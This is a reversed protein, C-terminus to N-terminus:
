DINVAFVILKNYNHGTPFFQKGPYTQMLLMQIVTTDTSDDGSVVIVSARQDVLRRVDAGDGQLSVVAVVHGDNLHKTFHARMANNPSGHIFFIVSKGVDLRRSSKLLREANELLQGIQGENQPIPIDFNLLDNASLRGRWDLINDNHSVAAFNPGRSSLTYHPIVRTAFHKMYQAIAPTSSPSTAFVYM